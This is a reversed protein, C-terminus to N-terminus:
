KGAKDAVLTYKLNDVECKGIFSYAFVGIESTPTLDVGELKQINCMYTWGDANPKFQNYFSVEWKKTNGRDTVTIALGLMRGKKNAKAMCEAMLYYNTNASLENASFRLAHSFTNKENLEVAHKSKYGTNVIFQSDPIAEFREIASKLVPKGLFHKQKKNQNISLLNTKLFSDWYDEKTISGITNMMRNSYQYAMLQNLFLFPLCITLVIAKSRFSLKSLFYTGTIIFLPYTDIFPRNGFGGGYTWCWWSAAIYLFLLFPIFFSLKKNWDGKVVLIFILAALLLPTHLFLGKRYSFLIKFFEPSDFYFSEGPYSMVFFDGTQIYYFLSQIFLAAMFVLLAVILKKFHQTFLIKLFAFCAEFSKFFFPLFLVLVINPPRILMVLALSLALLVLNSQSTSEILRTFLYFFLTIAFFSYVHSLTPEHIIFHYLNTGFLFLIFVLFALRESLSFFRVIKLMFFLALLIYVLPAISALMLFTDTYGNMPTGAVASILVGVLFFPLLCIATGCYYKNLWANNIYPELYPCYRPKIKNKEDHCFSCTFDQYIIAAPLYSYYGKGDSDVTAALGDSRENLFRQTVLAVLLTLFLFLYKKKWFFGLLKEKMTTILFSPIATKAIGLFHGAFTFYL